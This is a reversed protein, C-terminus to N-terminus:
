ALHAPPTQTIQVYHAQRDCLYVIQAPVGAQQFFRVLAADRRKEKPFSDFMDQNQWELTGVVAVWTRAPNWDRIPVTTM